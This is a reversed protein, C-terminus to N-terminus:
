LECLQRVEQSIRYRMIVKGVNGSAVGCTTLSHDKTVTRLSAILSYDPELEDFRRRIERRCQPCNAGHRRSAMLARLCSKGYSHGCELALPIHDGELSYDDLCISCEIETM